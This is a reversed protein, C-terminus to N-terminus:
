TDYETFEGSSSAHMQPDSLAFAECTGNRLAKEKKLCYPLVVGQEEEFYSGTQHSRAVNAM